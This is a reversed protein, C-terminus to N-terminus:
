DQMRKVLDALTPPLGDAYVIYGVEKWFEEWDYRVPPGRVTGVGSAPHQSATGLGRAKEFRKVEEQLVVLDEREVAIKSEGIRWPDVRLYSGPGNQFYRVEVRGHRMALWADQAVLDVTGTVMRRVNAWICSFSEQNLDGCEGEEVWLGVPPVSIRLEGALAFPALDDASLDWRSCIEQLRYFPKRMSSASM